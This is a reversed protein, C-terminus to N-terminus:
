EVRRGAQGVVVAGERDGASCRQEVDKQRVHEKNADDDPRLTAGAKARATSKNIWPASLLVLTVLAPVLMLKTIRM